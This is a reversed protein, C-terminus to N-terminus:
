DILTEYPSELTTTINYIKFLPKYDGCITTIRYILFITHYLAKQLNGIRM